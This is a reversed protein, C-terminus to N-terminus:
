SEAGSLVWRVPSGSEPIVTFIGPALYRLTAGNLLAGGGSTLVAQELGFEAPAALLTGDPMRFIAAALGTDLYARFLTVSGSPGRAPPSLSVGPPSAGLEAGTNGDLLRDGLKGMVLLDARGTFHNGPVLDGRLDGYLIQGQPLNPTMSRLRLNGEPTSETVLLSALTLVANEPDLVGEGFPTGSPGTLTLNSVGGEAGALFWDM